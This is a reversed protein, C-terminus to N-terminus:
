LRDNNGVEPWKLVSTNPCKQIMLTLTLFSKFTTKVRPLVDWFVSYSDSDWCINSLSIGSVSFVTTQQLFIEGSFSITM